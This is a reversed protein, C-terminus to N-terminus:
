NLTTNSAILSSIRGASGALRRPMPKTCVGYHRAREPGRGDMRKSVAGRVDLEGLLQIELHVRHDLAERRHHVLARQGPHAVHHRRQAAQRQMEIRIRGLQVALRQLSRRVQDGLAQLLDVGLLLVRLARHLHRHAVVALERRVDVFHRLLRSQRDVVHRLQV